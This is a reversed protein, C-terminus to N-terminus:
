SPSGGARILDADASWYAGGLEEENLLEEYYALVRDAITSWTFDLTRQRGAEAMRRGKEPNDAIRMLARALAVHDKPPVLIAAEQDTLMTRSAPIDSAVVPTGAAM